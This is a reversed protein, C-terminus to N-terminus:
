VYILRSPSNPSNRLFSLHILNIWDLLLSHNRTALLITFVSRVILSTFRASSPKLCIKNCTCYYYELHVQISFRHSSFQQLFLGLWYTLNSWKCSRLICYNSITLHYIVLLSNSWRKRQRSFPLLGLRKIILYLQTFSTISLLIRPCTASICSEADNWGTGREVSPREKQIHSWRRTPRTTAHDWIAYVSGCIHLNTSEHRSGSCQLNEGRNSSLIIIFSGATWLNSYERYQVRPIAHPQWRQLYANRDNSSWWSIM